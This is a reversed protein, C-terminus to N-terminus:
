IEQAVINVSGCDGCCWHQGSGHHTKRLQLNEIRNDLRNGNKHHVQEHSLLPRGLHKAMVLRHEPIYGARNKVKDRRHAMSVFPSDEEVYIEIGGQREIRGGKWQSNNPGTKFRRDPLGLIHVYRYVTDQSCNFERMIVKIPVNARWYDLLDTQQSPTLIRPKMYMVIVPSETNLTDLEGLYRIVNKYIPKLLASPM